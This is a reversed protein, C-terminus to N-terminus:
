AGSWAAILLAIAALAALGVVVVNAVLVRRLWQPREAPPEAHFSHLEGKPDRWGVAGALAGTVLTNLSVGEREAANALEDHLSAPMRVLLRGSHAPRQEAQASKEAETVAVVPSYPREGEAAVRGDAQMSARLRELADRILRSVTAQSIGERRAIEAQSLDEEYRM